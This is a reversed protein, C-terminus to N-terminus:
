AKASRARLVGRVITAVGVIVLGAKLVVSQQGIAFDFVGAFAVVIGTAIMGNPTGFFKMM